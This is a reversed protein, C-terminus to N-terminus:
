APSPGPPVVSGDMDFVEVIVGRGDMSYTEHNDVPELERGDLVVSFEFDDLVKVPISSHFVDLAVDAWLNRDVSADIKIDVRGPVSEVDDAHLNEIAVLPKALVSVITCHSM